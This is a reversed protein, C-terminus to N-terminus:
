KNGKRPRGRPPPTLNIGLVDATKREWTPSGFPRASRLRARIAEVEADTQPKNVLDLWDEPEDVPWLHLMGRRAADEGLRAHLSSWPWQEAKEVLGGRLANREVYRCVTLFHGDSEVAFSRFRGQYLPGLGVLKRAHRWRQAHTMTLWFMFRSLEGDERPWMMLHWHNPMLCYGLLRTPHLLLAEQMLREFAAYDGDRSFLRM